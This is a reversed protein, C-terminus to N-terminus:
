RTATSTATPTPTTNDTNSIAVATGLAVAGLVAAETVALGTGMVGGAVVTGTEAAAAGTTAAAPAAQAQAVQVPTTNQGVSLASWALLASLVTGSIVVKRMIGEGRLKHATPGNNSVLNALATVSRASPIHLMHGLDIGVKITQLRKANPM